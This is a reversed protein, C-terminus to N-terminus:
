PSPVLRVLPIRRDTRTRFRAYDPAALVRPWWADAAEPSMEEAHVRLTRGEVDVEADPHAALDLYWAPHTPMGSNAAVVM